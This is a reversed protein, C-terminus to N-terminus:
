FSRNLNSMSAHHTPVRQSEFPQPRLAELSATHQTEPQCLPTYQQGSVLTTKSSADGLSSRKSTSDTSFSYLNTSSSQRTLLSLTEASSSTPLAYNRFNSYNASTAPAPITELLTSTSFNLLPTVTSPAPEETVSATAPIYGLVGETVNTASAYDKSSIPLTAIEASASEVSTHGHADSGATEVNWAMAAKAYAGNTNMSSGSAVQSSRLARDQFEDVPNRIPQSPPPPLIPLHRPPVTNEPIQIQRQLPREPLAIPLTSQLATMNLPSLGETTVTPRVNSTSIYPLRSPTYSSTIAAEHELYANHGNHLTKQDTQNWRYSQGYANAVDNQTSLYPASQDPGYNEVPSAEESYPVTWTQPFLSKTNAQPYHSSPFTRSYLSSATADYIPMMANPNSVTALNGVANAWNVNQMVTVADSSGVRHFQCASLDVGSSRCNQCGSGNGPDGSCRIKRKRCRACAVAIRRRTQANETTQEERGMNGRSRPGSVPCGRPDLRSAHSVTLPVNRDASFYYHAIGVSPNRSYRHLTEYDM